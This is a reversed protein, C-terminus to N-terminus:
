TLSLAECKAKTDNLIVLTLAVCLDTRGGLFGEILYGYRDIRRVIEERTYTLIKLYKLLLPSLSEYISSLIQNNISTVILAHLKQDIVAIDSTFTNAASSDLLNQMELLVKNMQAVIPKRELSRSLERAASTEITINVQVLELLMKKDITTDNILSFSLSEIFRDLSTENVITKKGQVISILGKVELNNFAERISRPSAEFREALEKQSPLPEGPEFEKNLIMQELQSAIYASKTKEAM